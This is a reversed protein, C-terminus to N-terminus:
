ELDNGDTDLMFFGAESHADALEAAMEKGNLERNEYGPKFGHTGVCNGDTIEWHLDGLTDYELPQESLVVVEIVSKYFKRDTM